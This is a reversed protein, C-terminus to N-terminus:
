GAEEVRRPKRRRRDTIGAPRRGRAAEALSMQRESIGILEAAQWWKIKGSRALPFRVPRPFPGHPGKSM